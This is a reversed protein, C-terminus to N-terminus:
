SPDRIPFRLDSGPNQSGRDPIRSEPDSIASGPDLVLVRSGPDPIGPGTYWSRGKSPCSVNLKSGPDSVTSGIRYGPDRIQSGRDPIRSGLDGIRSGPGPIGPIGSKPDRTGYVM